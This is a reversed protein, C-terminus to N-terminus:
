RSTEYTLVFTTTKTISVATLQYVHVYDGAPAIRTDTVPTLAIVKIQPHNKIFGAYQDITTFVAVETKIVDAKAPCTFSVIHSVMVTILM